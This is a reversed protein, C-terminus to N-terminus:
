SMYSLRNNKNKYSASKTLSIKNEVAIHFIWFCYNGKLCLINPENRLKKNVPINRSSLLRCVFFYVRLRFFCLM